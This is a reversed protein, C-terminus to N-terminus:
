SFLTKSYIEFDVEQIRGSALKEGNVHIKSLTSSMNSQIHDVNESNIGSVEDLNNRCNRCMKLKHSDDSFCLVSWCSLKKFNEWSLTESENSPLFHHSQCFPVLRYALLTTCKGPTKNLSFSVSDLFLSNWGGTNKV